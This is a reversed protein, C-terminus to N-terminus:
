QARSLIGVTPVRLFGVMLGPTGLSTRQIEDRGAQGLRKLERAVSQVTYSEHFQRGILTKIRSLAWTQDPWGHAVPGKALEQELVAFLEDSLLPM